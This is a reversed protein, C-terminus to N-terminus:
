AKPGATAKVISEEPMHMAGVGGFGSQQADSGSGALELAAKFAIDFSGVPSFSETKNIANLAGSTPNPSAAANSFLSAALSLRLVANAGPITGQQSMGTPNLRFFAAVLLPDADRSPEQVREENSVEAVVMADSPPWTRKAPVWAPTLLADPLPPSTEDWHEGSKL